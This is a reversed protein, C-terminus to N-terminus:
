NARNRQNEKEAVNAKAKLGQSLFFIVKETKKIKRKRRNQNKEKGETM